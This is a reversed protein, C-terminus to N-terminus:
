ARCSSNNTAPAAVRNAGRDQQHHATGSTTACMIDSDPGPVQVQEPANDRGQAAGDVEAGDQGEDGKIHAFQM